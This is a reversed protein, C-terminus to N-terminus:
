DNNHAGVSHNEQNLIDHIVRYREVVMPWIVSANGVKKSIILQKQLLKRLYYSYKTSLRKKKSRDSTDEKFNEAIELSSTPWHEVIFEMIQKEFSTLSISPSVVFASDPLGSTVEIIKQIDNM